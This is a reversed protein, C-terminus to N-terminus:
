GSVPAGATLPCKWISLWIPKGSYRTDPEAYTAGTLTSTPSHWLSRCFYQLGDQLGVAVQHAATRSSRKIALASTSFRLWMSSLGTKRGCPNSRCQGDSTRREWLQLKRHCRSSESHTPSKGLPIDSQFLVEPLRQLSKAFKIGKSSVKM